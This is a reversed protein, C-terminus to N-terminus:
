AGIRDFLGGLVSLLDARLHIFEDIGSKRHAEVQDKPYGALVAIAGPVRSRLTAVFAPVIVPYTEDTSCLVAVDARSRAALEGAQEGDQAAKESLVEFGAVEFFGKSFDARAKHQTVPGVCALFVAPRRGVRAEYAAARRKLDEFARSPREIVLPDVHVPEGNHALARSIQGLTAGQRAAAMVTEVADPGFNSAVDALLGLIEGRAGGEISERRFQSAASLEAAVTEWDRTEPKGCDMPSAFQNVGVLVAKQCALAALREERRKALLSQVFGEELCEYMGGKSEIKRVLEWAASAIQWTLGEVYRAGAAPDQVAGVRSEWALLLQVGRAIRRAEQTSSASSVEDYPAVAMSDAGGISAAFAATTARLINTYEDLSSYCRSSTRAHIAL